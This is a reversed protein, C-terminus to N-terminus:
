QGSGLLASVEGTMTDLVLLKGPVNMESDRAPLFVYGNDLVYVVPPELGKWGCKEMERPTASRVQSIRKGVLDTTKM